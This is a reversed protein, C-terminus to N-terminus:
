RLQRFVAVDGRLNGDLGFRFGAQHAAAVDGIVAAVQNTWDFDGSGGIRTNVRSAVLPPLIPMTHAPWAAADAWHTPHSVSQDPQSTPPTRNFHGAAIPLTHNVGPTASDISAQWVSSAQRFPRTALPTSRLPM